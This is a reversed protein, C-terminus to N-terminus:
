FSFYVSVEKNRFLLLLAGSLGSPVPLSCGQSCQNVLFVAVVEAQPNIEAPIGM